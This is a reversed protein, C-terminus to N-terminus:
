IIEKEQNHKERRKERRVEDKFFKKGGV